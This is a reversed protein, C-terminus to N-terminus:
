KSDEVDVGRGEDRHELWRDIADKKFRWHKGVKQGPVKGEQALKYLTSKAVQLYSALDDITMVQPPDPVDRSGTSANTM